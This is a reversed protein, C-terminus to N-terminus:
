LSVGALGEFNFTHPHYFGFNLLYGALKGNNQSVSVGYLLRCIIAYVMKYLVYNDRPALRRIASRYASRRNSTTEYNRGHPILEFIVYMLDRCSLM